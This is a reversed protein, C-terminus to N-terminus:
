DFAWENEKLVEAEEEATYDSVIGLTERIEEHDKCATIVDAVRQCMLDLLGQINLYNAAAILDYVTSLDMETIFKDDWKKLDDGSSSSSDGGDVVVHKECYEVVKSLIKGTVEEIKYEPAPCDQVLHSLFQSELVVAKEVEFSVDDSSKLTIMKKENEM